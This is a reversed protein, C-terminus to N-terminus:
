EVVLGNQLPACLSRPKVSSFFQRNLTALITPAVDVSRVQANIVKGAPMGPGAIIMPIRVAADYLFVGHTSEGHEGLSEGHDGLVVCLTKDLLGREDFAKMLRGLQM